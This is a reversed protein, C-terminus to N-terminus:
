SVRGAQAGKRSDPITSPQKGTTDVLAKMSMGHPVRLGPNLKAIDSHDWTSIQGM